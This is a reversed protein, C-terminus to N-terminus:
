VLLLVSLPPSSSHSLGSNPIPGSSITPVHMKAEYMPTCNLSVERSLIAAEANLHALPHILTLQTESDRKYLTPRQDIPVELHAGHYRHQETLCLARPFLLSRLPYLLLKTVLNHSNVLWIFVVGTNIASVTSQLRDRIRAIELDALRPLVM